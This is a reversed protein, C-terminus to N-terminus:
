RFPNQDWAHLIQILSPKLVIIIKTIKCRVIHETLAASPPRQIDTFNSLSSGSLKYM